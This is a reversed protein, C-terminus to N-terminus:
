FGWVVFPLTSGHWFGSVFFVIFVCVVPSLRSVRRGILPLRSADAWVLPTFLYDQLWSSLSIHWRSWFGSFNAAFFPTKFNEPIDLGLLLASARAMESYGAFDFYLYLTYGVTAALLAPGGHGAADSYIPQVYMMIVDAVAVKKFLGLAFLQLARVTRSADFRHEARLQPLLQKARCIPGATITGFFCLFAALNVFSEEPEMDGRAVDVLYSVAAFTYFSIGLPFPLAHLVGPALPLVPLLFNFYKFVALVALLAIVAAALLRGKKEKRALALGMRWVFLCVAALVALPVLPWPGPWDAGTPRNFWYFVASAALLLGNQWGKPCVKLYLFAVVPLFAFYSFSQFSM